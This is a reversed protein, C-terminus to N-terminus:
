FCQPLIQILFDKLMTKASQSPHLKNRQPLNGHASLEERPPLEFGLSKGSWLPMGVRGTSTGLGVM